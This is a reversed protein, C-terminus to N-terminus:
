FGSAIPNQPKMIERLVVTAYSGRMLMFSLIAEKEKSNSGNTLVRILKFNKIPVVTARLGGKRGIEPMADVNFNETKLGEEDLIRTEIQGMVGQSFRQKTGVLPLAVRMRGNKVSESIGVLNEACVMKSVNVMPLGSREVGVVYDGIEIKNLSFGNKMRETLFRNFLYSQYAQVFLMQLKIPLREFAGVFDDPKEVLHALMLREYRLQKPFNKLARRFDRTSRLEKRAQRSSPHEYLSPKALFLMAADEFNGKVIAKGVLHTIPRTTGFRQHGFFNPVGGVLELEKITEAIRKKVTKESLHIAKIKITFNNGLLYYSSLKDRIYGLPRIEMDKVHVKSIDEISSNEITIHQATVAKADKIGAVQVQTQSIGLQKAINKIAILTDWNRKILVCLLYRQRTASAGLVRFEVNKESRAVSGDVLVEEVVFDDISQRIVGGIGPSKTAYARIGLLEDIKPVAL